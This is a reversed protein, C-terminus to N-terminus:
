YFEGKEYDTNRGFNDGYIYAPVPDKGKINAYQAKAAGTTLGAKVRNTTVRTM